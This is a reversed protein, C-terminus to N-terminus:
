KQADQRVSQGQNSPVCSEFALGGRTVWDIVRRRHSGSQWRLNSVVVGDKIARRTQARASRDGDELNWRLGGHIRLVLLLRLLLSGHVIGTVSAVITLWM